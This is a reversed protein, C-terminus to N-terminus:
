AVVQNVENDDVLLIRLVRGSRPLEERVAMVATDGGRRGMAAMIADLLRSPTIPKSVFGDVISRSSEIQSETALAPLLLVIRGAFDGGARLRTALAVGDEGDLGADILALGFEAVSGNAGRVAALAEAGSAVLTGDM